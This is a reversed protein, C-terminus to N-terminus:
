DIYGEGQEVLLINQEVKFVKEGIHVKHDDKGKHSVINGSTSIASYYNM